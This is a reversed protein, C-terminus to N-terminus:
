LLKNNNGVSFMVSEQSFSDKISLALQKGIVDSLGLLEISFSRETFTEGNQSVYCGNMESVSYAGIPNDIYESNIQMICSQLIQMYHTRNFRTIDAGEQPTSATANVDVSFMIKIKDWYNLPDTNIMDQRRKQEAVLSDFTGKKTKAGVIKHGTMRALGELSM